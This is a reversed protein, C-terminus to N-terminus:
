PIKPTLRPGQIHPVAIYNATAVPSDALGSQYAIAKVTMGPQATIAGCYVYGTTRTPTTGDLTYRFWAGSTSSKLTIATPETLTTAAPFFEPAGVPTKGEEYLGCDPYNRITDWALRQLRAIQPPTLDTGVPLMKGEPSERYFAAYWTLNVLYAGKPNLHASDRFFLPYFDGPQAGPFEGRDILHKLWGLALNSPLVRAPKPGHDLEALKRRVDEVYVLMASMSEEWTAAPWVHTMQTSPM